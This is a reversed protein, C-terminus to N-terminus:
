KARTFASLRSSTGEILEFVYGVQNSPITTLKLKIFGADSCSTDYDEGRILARSKEYLIKGREIILRGDKKWQSVRPQKVNMAVAFQNQNM